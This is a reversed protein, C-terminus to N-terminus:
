SVPLGAAAYAQHIVAVTARGDEAGVRAPRGTRIATAYDDWM